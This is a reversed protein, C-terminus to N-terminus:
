LVIFRLLIGLHEVGRLTVMSFKRKANPEKFGEEGASIGSLGWCPIGRGDSHVKYM